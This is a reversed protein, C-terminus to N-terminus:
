RSKLRVSIMSVMGMKHPLNKEIQKQSLGYGVDAGPMSIKALVCEHGYCAFTLKPNDPDAKKQEIANLFISHGRSDYVQFWGGVNKQNIVYHGAPLTKQQVQFAFPIDAAESTSQASLSFTGLMASLGATLVLSTFQRKM